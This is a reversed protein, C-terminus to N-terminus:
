GNPHEKKFEKLAIQLNALDAPNYGDTGFQNDAVKTALEVITEIRKQKSNPEKKIKIKILYYDRYEEHKISDHRTLGLFKRLEANSAM